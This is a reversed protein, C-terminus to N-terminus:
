LTSTSLALDSLLLYIVLLFAMVMNTCRYPYFYHETGKGEEHQISLKDLSIHLMTLFLKVM